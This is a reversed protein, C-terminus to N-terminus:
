FWENIDNFKDEISVLKNRCKNKHGIKHSQWTCNPSIKFESQTKLLFLQMFFRILYKIM